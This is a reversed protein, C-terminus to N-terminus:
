GAVLPAGGRMSLPLGIGLALLATAALLLAFPLPRTDAPNPYLATLLPLFGGVILVAALAIFVIANVMKFRLTIGPEGMEALAAMRKWEADTYSFGPWSMGADKVPMMMSSWLALRVLGRDDSATTVIEGKSEGAGMLDTTRDHWRHFASFGSSRTWSARRLRITSWRCTTRERCRFSIRTRFEPRSKAATNSHMCRM